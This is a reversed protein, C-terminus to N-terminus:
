LTSGPIQPESHAIPTTLARGSLSRPRARAKSAVESKCM